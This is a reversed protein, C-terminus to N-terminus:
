GTRVFKPFWNLDGKPQKLIWLHEKEYDRIPVEKKIRRRRKKKEKEKKEKKEKEVRSILERYKKRM